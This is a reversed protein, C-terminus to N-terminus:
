IELIDFECIMFNFINSVEQNLIDFILESIIIELMGGGVYNGLHVGEVEVGRNFLSNDTLDGLVQVLVRRNEQLM